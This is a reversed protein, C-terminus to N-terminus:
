GVRRPNVGPAGLETARDSPHSQAAARAASLAPDVPPVPIATTSRANLLISARLRM